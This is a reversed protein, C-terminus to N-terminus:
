KNLKHISLLTKFLQKPKLKHHLYSSIVETREAELKSKLTEYIVQVKKM